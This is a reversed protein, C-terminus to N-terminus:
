RCNRVRITPQPAWERTLRRFYLAIDDDSGECLAIGALSQQVPDDLSYAPANHLKNILTGPIEQLLQGADLPRRGKDLLRDIEGFKPWECQERFRDYVTQLFHRQDRTL